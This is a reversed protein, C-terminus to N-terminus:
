AYRSRQSVSFDNLSFRTVALVIALHDRYRDDTRNAKLGSDTPHEFVKRMGPQASSAATPAM